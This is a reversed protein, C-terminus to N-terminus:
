TSFLNWFCSYIISSLIAFWVIGFGPLCLALSPVAEAAKTLLDGHFVVKPFLMSESCYRWPCAYTLLEIVKWTVSKTHIASKNLERHPCGCPFHFCTFVTSMYVHFLSLSLVDGFYGLQITSAILTRIKTLSHSGLSFFIGSFIHKKNKRTPGM